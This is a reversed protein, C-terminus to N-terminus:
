RSRPAVPYLPSPGINPTAVNLPLYLDQIGGVFQFGMDGPSILQQDEHTYWWDRTRQLEAMRSEVTLQITCTEGADSITPVDTYGSWSRYPTAIPLGTATDLAGLYVNCVFSPRVENLVQAIATSPIGSLSLTMMDATMDNSETLQSIAGILQDNPLVIGGWTEGNWQLGGRGTWLRVWGSLFQTEVLLIPALSKKAMEAMLATTLDRV